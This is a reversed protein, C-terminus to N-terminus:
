VIARIVGGDVALTAGTIYAAADSLLFVAAAAFEEIHGYRGLPIAAASRARAEAVSIGAKRATEEDLEAVCDTALRGPILRNVRIGDAAWEDALAKALASVGSRMVGSLVLRASPQRVVSGTVFLV